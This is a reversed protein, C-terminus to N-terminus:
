VNSIVWYGGRRSLRSPFEACVHPSTRRQTKMGLRLPVTAMFRVLGNSGPYSLWPFRSSRRVYSTYRCSGELSTCLQNAGAGKRAPGLRTECHRCCLSARGWRSREASGGGVVDETDSVGCKSQNWYVHCHINGVPTTGELTCTPLDSRVQVGLPCLSLWSTFPM